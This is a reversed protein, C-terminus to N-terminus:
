GFKFRNRFNHRQARYVDIVDSLRIQILQRISGYLVESAFTKMQHFLPWIKLVTGQFLHEQKLVKKGAALLIGNFGIQRM